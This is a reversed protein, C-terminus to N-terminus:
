VRDNRMIMSTIQYFQTRKCWQLVIQLGFLGFIFPIYFDLYILSIFSWISIPFSLGFLFLYLPRFIFPIYFDLYLISFFIAHCFFEIRLDRYLCSWFDPFFNNFCIPSYTLLKFFTSYCSWNCFFVSVRIWFSIETPLIRQFSNLEFCLLM